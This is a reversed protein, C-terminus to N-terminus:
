PTRPTIWSKGACESLSQLKLLARRTLSSLEHFPKELLEPAIFATLINGLIGDHQRDNQHDDHARDPQDTGVRVVDERRDAARDTLLEGAAARAGFHLRRAERNRWAVLKEL